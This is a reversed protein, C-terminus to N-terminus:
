DEDDMDDMTDYPDIRGEKQAIEDLKELAPEIIIAEPFALIKKIIAIKYQLNEVEALGKHTSNELESKFRRMEGNKLLYKLLTWGPTSILTQMAAARVEPTWNKPHVVSSEIPAISTIPIDKSM